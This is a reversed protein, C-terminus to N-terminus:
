ISLEEAFTYPIFDLPNTEQYAKERHSLDSLQKSTLNSLNVRIYSLTDIEAKTFAAMDPPNQTTFVEGIYDGEIKENKDLENFWSALAVFLTDFQDPVPGLPLHKYPLGTISINFDKFHKFDAYFLLKLLKTKYVENRFCFYKCVQTFKDFNFITNGNFEDPSYAYSNGILEKKFNKNSESLDSQLRSFLRGKAKKDVIEPKEQIIKLLNNPEICLRIINDHADSQLAGNEYRNLTAIGIGLIQSFEKQTLGLKTRYAKIEEPQLLGKQDRYLRYAINFPDEDPAQPLEYNDGCNFCHYYTVEVPINEGRVEFDQIEKVLEQKTEKECYPCFLKM